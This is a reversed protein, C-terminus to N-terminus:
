AERISMIKGISKAFNGADRGTFIAGAVAFAIHELYLVNEAIEECIVKSM